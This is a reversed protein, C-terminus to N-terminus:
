LRERQLLGHTHPLVLTLCRAPICCPCYRTQGRHHRWPGQGQQCAATGMGLVSALAMAGKRCNNPSPQAMAEERDCTQGEGQRSRQPRRRLGQRIRAPSECKWPLRAGPFLTDQLSYRWFEDPQVVLCDPCFCVASSCFRPLM